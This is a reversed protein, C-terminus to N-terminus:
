GEGFTPSQRRSSRPGIMSRLPRHQVLSPVHIWYTQGTEKLWERTTLDNGSTNGAFHERSFAALARAAGRPLYFCQNMLFTRGPEERSGVTLDAKRMSFFQIVQDPREEIAATVRELWRPALEVDDELLVVPSDGAADLARLWTHTATGEPLPAAWVIEIGPVQERMERVSRVRAPEWPVAMVIVRLSM